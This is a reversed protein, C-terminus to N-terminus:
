PHTSRPTRTACSVEDPGSEDEGTAACAVELVWEASPAQGPANTYKVM